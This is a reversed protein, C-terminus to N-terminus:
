TRRRNAAYFKALLATVDGRFVASLMWFPFGVAMLVARPSRRGQGLGNRDRGVSFWSFGGGHVLRGQDLSLSFVISLSLSLSLSLGDQDVIADDIWWQWSAVLQQGNRRPRRVRLITPPGFNNICSWRHERKRSLTGASGGGSERERERPRPSFLARALSTITRSLSTVTVTVRTYSRREARGLLRLPASRAAVAGAHVLLLLLLPPPIAKTTTTTGSYRARALRSSNLLSVTVRDRLSM